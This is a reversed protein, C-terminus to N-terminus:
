RADPELDDRESNPIATPGYGRHKEFQRYREQVDKDTLNGDIKSGEDFGDLGKLSLINTGWKDRELRPCKFRLLYADLIGHGPKDIERSLAGLYDAKSTDAWSISFGARYSLELHVLLMTRGNGDLFPHGYAFLGMVEGPKRAMITKDQGIRLGSEVARRSDQPHCFLVDGKVVARDPMTESRDKGAWPYYDSFLIRHVVLFDAYVLVKKTALYALASELNARFLDHEFHKIKAEDKDKRVNRLYGEIEFDNFPDFLISSMLIAVLSHFWPQGM